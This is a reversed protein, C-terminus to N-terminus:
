AGVSMTDIPIGPGMTSSLTIKRVYTGKSTAPRARKLDTLLAAVNEEVQQPDQGVHGVSGHIIGGRDARFQVQGSKANKVATAVEATVTGSRPNPMLGRPGLIRGLKGVSRMCDPAAICVDFDLRGAKVEEVLDEYGVVDAGAEKAANALDGQAFVAVRVLKGISHPLATSGRVMQDGRKTNIGLNIAVDLSEKFKAAPLTNLAKVAESISYTRSLDLADATKRQRNTIKSM